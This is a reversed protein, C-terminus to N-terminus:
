YSASVVKDSDFSISPLDSRFQNDNSFYIYDYESFDVISYCVTDPLGLIEIVDEKTM